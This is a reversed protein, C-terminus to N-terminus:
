ENKKRETEIYKDTDEKAREGITFVLKRRRKRKIRNHKTKM